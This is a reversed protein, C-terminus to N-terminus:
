GVMLREKASLHMTAWRAVSMEPHHTYDGSSRIQNYDEALVEGSASVLLLGFPPNGAELAQRALEVCRHLYKLDADTLM